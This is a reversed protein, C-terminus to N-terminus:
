ADGQIGGVGILLSQLFREPGLCKLVQGRGLLGGGDWWSRPLAFRLGKFGSAGTRLSEPIPEPGLTWMEPQWSLVGLALNIAVQVGERSLIM